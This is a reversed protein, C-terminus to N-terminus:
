IRSEFEDAPYIRIRIEFKLFLPLLDNVRAALQNPDERLLPLVHHFFAEIATQLRVQNEPLLPTEQYGKGNKTSAKGPTVKRKQHASGAGPFNVRYGQESGIEQLLAGAQKADLELPPIEGGLIRGLFPNKPNSYVEYTERGFEYPLAQAGKINRPNQELILPTKQKDRPSEETM